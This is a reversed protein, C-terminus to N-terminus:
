PAARAGRPSAEVISFSGGPVLIISRLEFRSVDLMGAWDLATRERGRTAVLMNLDSMLKTELGEDARDIVDPLIFEIVLLRGDDPTVARCRRLIEVAEDDTKGHLVSKLIYVDAGAPVGESLDAAVLECREALGERAIREAAAEVAERRDVLMGRLGPYTHLVASILAGGGGGLDAAVRHKSFDWVQAIPRYDEAPATGMVTRMIDKAERVQSWRSPVNAPRVNAASDGARVCDTLHSWSDALLDAWFVVAAWESNEVDKRLPRGFPTLVFRGPATEAVVGFSALARLLRHLATPEAGCRVALQSVSLEGDGLADAVGLQAAACLVRSRFYGMSTTTLTM